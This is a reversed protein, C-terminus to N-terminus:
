LKNISENFLTRARQEFVDFMKNKAFQVNALFRDYCRYWIHRVDNPRATLLQKNDQIARYIRDFPNNITDYNHDIIDDFVDLGINRLFDVTGASSIFIPFNCGLISNLTKETILFSKETMTTESIFEICVNEYLPKLRNTFNYVNDNPRTSQYIDESESISPIMWKLKTLGQYIKSLQVPDLRWNMEDLIDQANTSKIHSKYYNCSILGHKQINFYYLLALLVTRSNRRGRNLSVFNYSSNWNKEVIPQVDKYESRQNTIDGGWPVIAIVNPANIYYSLNEVSTLLLFNADNFSNFLDDLYYVLPPKTDFWPNFQGNTFHDKIGLIVRNTKISNYLHKHFQDATNVYSKGEISLEKTCYHPDTTNAWMYICDTNDSYPETLNYFLRMTFSDFPPQSIINYPM